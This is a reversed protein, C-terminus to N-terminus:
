LKVNKTDIILNIKKILDFIEQVGPSINKQYAESSSLFKRKM